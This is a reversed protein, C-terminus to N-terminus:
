LVHYNKLVCYILFAAFFFELFIIGFVILREPLLDDKM